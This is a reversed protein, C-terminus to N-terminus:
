YKLYAGGIILPILKCWKFLQNCSSFFITLWSIRMTMMWIQRLLGIKKKFDGKLMVHCVDIVDNPLNKRIIMPHLWLLVFKMKEVITARTTNPAKWFM